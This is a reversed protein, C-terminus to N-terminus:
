AYKREIDNCINKLTIDNFQAPNYVVDEYYLFLAIATEDDLVFTYKSKLDLLKIVLKKYLKNLLIALLKDQMAIHDNNFVISLEQELAQMQAKTLKLTMRKAIAKKFTTLIFSSLASIKRLM